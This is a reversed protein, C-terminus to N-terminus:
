YNLATTYDIKNLWSCDISVKAPILDHILWDGSRGPPPETAIFFSFREEEDSAMYMTGPVPACAALHM